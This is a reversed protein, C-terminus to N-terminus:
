KLGLKLWNTITDIQAENILAPAHGMHEWEILTVNNREDRMKIATDEKLIDSLKGRLLLIPCQVKKWYESLDIDAIATGKSASELFAKNIDPDYKLVYGKDPTLECTAELMFEWEAQGAIGFPALVKKVYDMAAGKDPFHTTNKGVYGLIRQLGEASVISGVDNLVMKTILSPQMAALMMGMIGGMSTGIWECQTIGLKTLLQQMDALYTGYHYLNKDELWDSKGRGAMDPAIVRYHKALEEALPIFDGSNRSLGHVCVVVRPNHVDGWEQYALKRGEELLLYHYLM